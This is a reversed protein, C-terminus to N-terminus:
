EENESIEIKVIDCCSNLKRVSDIFSQIANLQTYSLELGADFSVAGDTLNIYGEINEQNELEIELIHSYSM